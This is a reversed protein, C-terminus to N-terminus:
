KLLKALEPIQVSAAHSRLDQESEYYSTDKKGRAVFKKSM